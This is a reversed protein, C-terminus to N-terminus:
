CEWPHQQPDGVPRAAHQLSAAVDCRKGDSALEDSATEIAKKAADWSKIGTYGPNNVLWTAARELAAHQAIAIM